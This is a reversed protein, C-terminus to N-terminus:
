DGEQINELDQYVSRIDAAQILPSSPSLIMHEVEISFYNFFSFLWLQSAHVSDTFQLKKQAKIDLLRSSLQTNIDGSSTSSTLKRM